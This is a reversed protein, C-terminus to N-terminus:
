MKKHVYFNISCCIQSSAIIMTVQAGVHLNACTKIRESGLEFISEGLSKFLFTYTVPLSIKTAYDYAKFLWTRWVSSTINYKQHPQLLFKFNIVRSLSLALQLIIRESMMLQGSQIVNGIWPIDVLLEISGHYLGISFASVLHQESIIRLNIGSVNRYHNSHMPSTSSKPSLHQTATTLRTRSSWNPVNFIKLLSFGFVQIERWAVRHKPVLFLILCLTVLRPRRM